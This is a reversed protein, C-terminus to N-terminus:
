QKLSAFSGRLPMKFYKVANNFCIDRVVGGIHAFDNQLEGAEMEAGLKACLLRRFYEHRPYSLFSRSDTLMGVFRSILGISSLASLQRMMGDKHDNYWWATGFQMKGPTRGDMFSGLVSAIVDNDNPNLSYIITRALKGESELRDFLSVMGDLIPFQGICDYGTDPGRVGFAQRSNNRKAGFHLQQTWNQEADMKLLEYLISSRYQELEEGALSAGRRAKAFAAAVAAQTYPAAYPREIGYDSLKCGCKDFYQHREWLVSLLDDYTEVSKGSVAELRAIWAGLAEANDAALAKDPRWAPYLSVDWDEEALARHQMLDDAPDDTTCVLAVNSRGIISRVSFEPKALLEACRDYIERATEPSVLKDIGFYRKLELHSWHYVPNGITQPLVNAWAQFREFDGAAYPIGSVFEESVGCARMARWKYHDGYLWIQTLNEFQRDELVQGVPLHSHYDYIPMDKAYEHYLTEAAKCPLLFNEDMFAKM